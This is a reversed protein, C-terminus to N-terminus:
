ASLLTRFIAEVASPIFDPRDRLAKSVVERKLRKGYGRLPLFASTLRSELEHGQVNLYFSPVLVSCGGVYDVTVPADDDGKQGAKDGVFDVIAQLHQPELEFHRTRPPVGMREPPLINERLLFIGLALPDLVLNELSHREAVYAIGDGSGGRSDRDVVGWVSSNGRDRLTRVLYKVADCDGKGGKGSAIFELSLETDLRPRLLRFLEQFADEDYESEVFVQRRNEIRVSLTSIGVTLSNLAEDRTAPRLRPDGTRRITYLSESPALAVTSPSHTTMIVKVGYRKNFIENTVRLLSQVMSPHLSADPEDLLLVEPLEIAYGLRDGTYLCMAVILLTKEGSSLQATKVATRTPRHILTAEYPIDEAFGAPIEFEYDLGVLLLTQNLLDWPPPGYRKAFEEDSLAPGPAKRKEVAWQLLDNQKRREFYTVFLEGVTMQFPDRVGLFLPAHARYDDPGFEILRKGAASVMRDLEAESVLRGMLIQARVIAELQDSDLENNHQTQTAITHVVQQQLPAWRGRYSAPSQASEAAAVLQALRFLRVNPSGPGPTSRTVGAVDVAGQDIAELLDSKGSGNLGSLVIHNALETNSDIIPGTISNWQRRFFLRLSM